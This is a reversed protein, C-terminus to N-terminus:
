PRGGGYLDTWYEDYKKRFAAEADTPFPFGEPGAFVFENQLDPEKGGRQKEFLELWVDYHQLLKAADKRLEPPILHGKTLLLDRITENGARIVKAELYLNKQQWRDFALKTRDFQINMPGLLEAVSREQWALRSRVGEATATIYGTFLVTVFSSIVAGSVLGSIVCVVIERRISAPKARKDENETKEKVEAM